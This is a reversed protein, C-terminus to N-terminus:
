YNIDDEDEKTATGGQASQWAELAAILRNDDATPKANAKATPLWHEILAGVQEPALDRVELGKCKGVHIKTAGFDGSMDTVQQTRRYSRPYATGILADTQCIQADYASLRLTVHDEIEYDLAVRAIFYWDDIEAPERDADKRILRYQQLETTFLWRDAAIWGARAVSEVHLGDDQKRVPVVALASADIQWRLGLPRHWEGQVGADVADTTAASSLGGETESSSLLSDDLFVHYLAHGESFQTHREHVGIVVASARWGRSRQLVSAPLGDVTRGSAVSELLSEGARMASSAGIGRSGLAGDSEAIREIESWLDKAPRDRVSSLRNREYVLNALRQRADHSLERGLAGTALLRAEIVRAVYVGTVDRVRGLGLEARADLHTAVDRSRQDVETRQEQTSGPGSLFSKQTRAEWSQSQNGFASLGGGAFVPNAGMYRGSSAELSWTEGTVRQVSRMESRQAVLPYSGMERISNRGGAAGLALRLSSFGREGDGLRTFASGLTANASTNRAWRPEADSTFRSASGDFNGTWSLVHHDPIRFDAFDDALAPAPISVLAALALASMALRNM